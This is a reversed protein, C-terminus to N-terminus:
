NSPPKQKQIEDGQALSPASLELAIQRGAVDVIVGQRRIELVRVKQTISKDDKVTAVFTDGERWAEGNITAFRNHSGVFVGGLVLELAEAAVPAPGGSQQGTPTDSPPPQELVIELASKAFPDVWTPDFACARRSRRSSRTM